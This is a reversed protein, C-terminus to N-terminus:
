ARHPWLARYALVCMVVYAVTKPIMLMGILPVQQVFLVVAMYCTFSVLIMLGIWWFTRDHNARADRLISYAVLGQVLLPLNRITSWPQPPVPANWQNAPVALLLLRVLAAAFLLYELPGYQKGFRYRWIAVMMVYFLTVTIATAMTGIGPLSFPIGLFSVVLATNGTAYALL